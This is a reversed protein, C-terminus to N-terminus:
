RRRSTVHLRGDSMQGRELHQLISSASIGLHQGERAQDRMMTTCFKKSSSFRRM